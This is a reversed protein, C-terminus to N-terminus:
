EDMFHNKGSYYQAVWPELRIYIKRESISERRDLNVIPSQSLYIGEKIGPYFMLKFKKDWKQEKALNELFEPIINLSAYRFALFNGKAHENDNLYITPCHLLKGVVPLYFSSQTIGIDPKVKKLFKYLLFVRRPFYLMKRLKSKGAHGGIENYEWNNQKILDITNALDRTTIIIENGESKWQNIFPKFFNIHPSNTLDIWIKM